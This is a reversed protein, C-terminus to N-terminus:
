AKHLTTKSGHLHLQADQNHAFIYNIHMTVERTTDMTVLTVGSRAGFLVLLCCQCLLWSDMGARVEFVRISFTWGCKAITYQFSREQFAIQLTVVGFFFAM